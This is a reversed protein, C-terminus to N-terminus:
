DERIFLYIIFLILHRRCRAADVEGAAGRPSLSARRCVDDGVISGARVIEVCWGLM